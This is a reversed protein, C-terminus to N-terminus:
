PFRECASFCLNSKPQPIFPPGAVIRFDRTDERGLLQVYIYVIVRGSM